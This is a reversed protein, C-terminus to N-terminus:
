ISEEVKLKNETILKSAAKLRHCNHCRDLLCKKGCNLRAETFLSILGRNSVDEVGAIITDVNGIWRRDQFYIEYFVKQKEDICMFEVVDIYPEYLDLDEPRVWFATLNGDKQTHAFTFGSIQAINPVMRLKVGYRDAIDRANKMQFGLEGSVYVDSVGKECLVNLMDLSEANAYGYPFFFRVGELEADVDKIIFKINDRVKSLDKLNSIIEDQSTDFGSLDYVFTKDEEKTENLIQILDNKYPLIFEKIDSIDENFDYPNFNRITCYM